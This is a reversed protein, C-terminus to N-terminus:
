HRCRTFLVGKRHRRYKFKKRADSSSFKWRIVRKLRNIRKLWPRTWVKLTDLDPVRRGGICQRSYIGIAIEAQNLWSAHKPTYHITFRNWIREGEDPGYFDVLSKKKHTNLNDQVLHITQADPYRRAISAMFKAYEAAKRNDTPKAMFAGKRPEIACFVNISGKRRYEYDRRAIRGPVAAVPTRVEEHCMVPKEDMCVVPEESNYPKNYLDLIDEMREVYEDDLQGPICWM